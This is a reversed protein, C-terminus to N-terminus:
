YWEWNPFGAAYIADGVALAKSDAIAVVQYAQKSTFEVMALDLNFFLPSRVQKGVHKQGDATLITSRNEEGEGVIHACTLVTYTQGKRGVIAGSGTASTTFIRVTVQKAVAPVADGTPSRDTSAVQSLLM